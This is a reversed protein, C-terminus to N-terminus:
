KEYAGNKDYITIWLEGIDSIYMRAGYDYMGTEQLEKGNYKYSYAIEYFLLNDVVGYFRATAVSNYEM